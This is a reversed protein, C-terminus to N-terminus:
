AAVLRGENILLTASDFYETLALVKGDQIQWRSVLKFTQRVGSKRHTFVVNATMWVIDGEGVLESVDYTALQYETAIKSMVALAGARGIHCGGFGYFVEPAASTWVFDDGIAELFPELDAQAYAALIRRILAKNEAAGM